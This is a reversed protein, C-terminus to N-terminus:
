KNNALYVANNYILNGPILLYNFDGPASIVYTMHDQFYKCPYVVLRRKKKRKGSQLVIILCLILKLNEEKSSKESLRIKDRIILYESREFLGKDTQKSKIKKPKKNVFNEIRHHFIDNPSYIM